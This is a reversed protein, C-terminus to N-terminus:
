LLMVPHALFYIVKERQTTATLLQDAEGRWVWEYSSRALTAVNWRQPVQTPKECDNAM